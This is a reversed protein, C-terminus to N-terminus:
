QKSSESIGAIRRLLEAALEPEKNPMQLKRTPAIQEFCKALITMDHSVLQDIQVIALRSVFPQRETAQDVNMGTMALCGQFTGLADIAAEELILLEAGLSGTLPTGRPIHHSIDGLIPGFGGSPLSAGPSLAIAMEQKTNLYGVATTVLEATILKKLSSRRRDLDELARRSESLRNIWNGLLLAAGGFLAGALAAAAATDTGCYISWLGLAVLVISLALDSSKELVHRM